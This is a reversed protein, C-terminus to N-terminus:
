NKALVHYLNDSEYNPNTIGNPNPTLPEYTEQSIGEGQLPAYMEQPNDYNGSNQIDPNQLEAYTEPQYNTQSGPHGPANLPAYTQEPQNNLVAYTEPTHNQNSVKNDTNKMPAFNSEEYLEGYIPQNENQLGEYSSPTVAENLGQYVNNQEAQLNYKTLPAYTPQQNVGTYVPDLGAYQGTSSQSSGDIPAEYTNQEQSSELTTYLAPGQSPKQLATYSNGDRGTPPHVPNQQRVNPTSGLRKNNNNNLPINPIIYDNGQYPAIDAYMEQTDSDILASTSCASQLSTDSPRPKVPRQVMTSANNYPPALPGNIPNLYIPNQLDGNKKKKKSNDDDKANTSKTRRKKLLVIVVIILIVVVVSVVALAIYIITNSDEKDKDGSNEDVSPQANTTSKTVATPHTAPNTSLTTPGTPQTTPGTPQTIPGTPQTIPGTPQTIPGTPQTTIPVIITTSKKTAVTTKIPVKTTKKPKTILTTAITTSSLTTTATKTAKTSISNTTKTPTITTPTQTTTTTTTPTTTTTTPTTTTTTPTTTTTTTTTPTNTPPSTVVPFLRRVDFPYTIEGPIKLIFCKDSDKQYTIKMLQGAWIKQGFDQSFKLRNGDSKFMKKLLFQKTLDMWIGKTSNQQLNWLEVKKISNGRYVMKKESLNNTYLVAKDECSIERYKCSLIQGNASLINTRVNCKCWPQRWVDFCGFQWPHKVPLQNKDIYDTEERKIKICLVGHTALIILYISALIQDM